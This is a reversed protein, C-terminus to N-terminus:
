KNKWEHVIQKGGAILKDFSIVKHNSFVGYAIGIIALVALIKALNDWFSKWGEGSM